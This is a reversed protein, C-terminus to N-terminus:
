AALLMGNMDRVPTHIEVCRCQIRESAKLTPDGPYMGGNSFPASLPVTEGDLTRHSHRTRSDETAIWTHSMRIPLAKAAEHSGNNLATLTETRAIVNARKRNIKKANDWLADRIEQFTLDQDLLANAQDRLWKRTTETINRVETFGVRNFFDQFTRAWDRFFTFAKTGPTRRRILDFEKGYMAQFYREERKAAKPGETYYLDRLVTEIPGQTVVSDLLQLAAPFGFEDAASLFAQVQVNLAERILGRYKAETRLQVRAKLKIHQRQKRNM